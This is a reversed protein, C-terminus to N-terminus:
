KRGDMPQAVNRRPLGAYTIIQQAYGRVERRGDRYGKNQQANPGVLITIRAEDCRRARKQGARGYASEAQESPLKKLPGAGAENEIGM